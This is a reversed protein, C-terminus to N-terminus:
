RKKHWCRECHSETAGRQLEARSRKIGDLEAASRNHQSDVAIEHGDLSIAIDVNGDPLLGNSAESACDDQVGDESDEQGAAKASLYLTRM